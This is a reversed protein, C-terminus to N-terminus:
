RIFVVQFSFFTKLNHIQPCCATFSISKHKSAECPIAFLEWRWDDVSQIPERLFRVRRKRFSELTLLAAGLVTSMWPVPLVCLNTFTPRRM